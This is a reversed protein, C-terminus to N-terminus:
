KEFTDLVSQTGELLNDSYYSKLFEVNKKYEVTVVTLGDPHKDIKSILFQSFPSFIFKDSYRFYSGITPDSEGMTNSELEFEIRYKSLNDKITEETKEYFVYYNKNLLYSGV